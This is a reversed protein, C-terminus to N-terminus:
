LATESFLKEADAFPAGRIPAFEIDMLRRSIDDSSDREKFQRYLDWYGVKTDGDASQRLYVMRMIHATGPTGPLRWVLYRVGDIRTSYVLQQMGPPSGACRLIFRWASWDLKINFFRNRTYNVLPRAFHRSCLATAPRLQEPTFSRLRDTEDILNRQLTAVGMWTSELNPLFGLRECRLRMFLLDDTFRPPRPIDRDDPLLTVLLFLAARFYPDAVTCALKAAAPTLQFRSEDRIFGCLDDFLGYTVIRDHILHNGNNWEARLHLLRSLAEEGAGEDLLQLLDKGPADDIVFRQNSM